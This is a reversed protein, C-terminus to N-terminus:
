RVVPVMKAYGKMLVFEKPVEVAAVVLLMRVWPTKKEEEVTAADCNGYADVVFIEDASADVVLRFM